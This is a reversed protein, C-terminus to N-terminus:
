RYSLIKSSDTQNNVTNILRLCNTQLEESIQHVQIFSVEDDGYITEFADDFAKLQNYDYVCNNLM